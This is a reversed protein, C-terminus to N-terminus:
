CTPTKGTEVFYRLKAMVNIVKSEGLAIWYTEGTDQMQITLKLTGDDLAEMLLTARREAESM